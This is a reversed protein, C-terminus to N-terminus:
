WRSKQSNCFYGNCFWVGKSGGSWWSKAYSFVASTLKTAVTSAM